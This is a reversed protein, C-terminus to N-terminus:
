VSVFDTSTISSAQVGNLVALLENSSTIRILANNVNSDTGQSITLENFTLDGFLGLRDSGDTFDTIVDTGSGAALVFVDQGSGGTLIDNGVGGNLTDNGDMGYLDDNGAFGYITNNVSTGILSDTVDTGNILGTPSSLTVPVFEIYDLRAFEAQNLTGLIEISDGQNISLGSAITQTVMTRSDVGGSGLWQNLVRSDIQTGAIKTTLRSQGDNEDFYRLIVDYTGSAGSFTSSVTGSASRNALLGVVKGDSAVSNSEISYGIQQMSEAEIRITTQPQAVSVQFTGLNAAAIPNSQTDRVQFEQLSVNYSSNDTTDWSGGPANILYTATRPSGNTSSNVSVLQALQSFGNPGTVRVDSSDLTSINIGDNDAYTVTFIHTKGNGQSVNAASLTATAPIEKRIFEIYDVRAFEAKNLTGLIEITDGQNVYLGTAITQTVMTRSDVGGWGLNQNLIRSDIQTGGIKTTLTSEGDNEDFYRLVIDYVGSAGNFTSSVVGSPSQTALLGV